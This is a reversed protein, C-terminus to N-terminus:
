TPIGGIETIDLADLRDTRHADVGSLRPLRTGVVLVEPRPAVIGALTWLQAASRRAAVGAGDCALCAALLNQAPTVPAGAMRYVNQHVVILEGATTRRGLQHISLGSKEADSRTVLGLQTEALRALM